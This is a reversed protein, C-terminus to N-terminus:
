SSDSAAAGLWERCTESGLRAAQEVLRLGFEVNKLRKDGIVIPVPLEYGDMYMMGLNCRGNNDGRSFADLYLDHALPTNITTGRGLEYHLALKVQAELHGHIAALTYWRIAEAENKSVGQGNAYMFGLRFKAEMLGKKAAQQIWYFALEYNQPLYGGEAKYMMGLSLQAVLHSQLAAKRFYTFTIEDSKNVGLGNQYLLGMHFQAEAEGQEALPNLLARALDYKKLQYAELGDSLDDAWTFASALSSILLILTFILNKM